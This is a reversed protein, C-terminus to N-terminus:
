LSIIYRRASLAATAGDGAATIVQRASNHRVDGAAFVGAVGTEMSDNTIISGSEDLSLSGGLFETSPVSGVAVFVGDVSVESIIADRTNRLRLATVAQDGEIGEVVSNWRFSIKPSKRANAQLAESARLEDRRHVVIVDSAFTALELADTLATDGGGIVAVKKGRFFAGDCTACYSVGKGLHEAEGPVDLTRYDSGTAIILATTQIDGDATHVIHASGPPGHTSLTVDTVATRVVETGAKEAQRKMAQGLDLGSIGQDFGPYNEVHSANVIKGGAMTQELVATTFGSRAAYLGATLGAPGGGLIVVQYEM